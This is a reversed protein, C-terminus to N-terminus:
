RIELLLNNCHGGGLGSCRFFVDLSLLLFFDDADGGEIPLIVGVPLVCHTGVELVLLLPEDALLLLFSGCCLLGLILFEFETQNKVGLYRRLYEVSLLM